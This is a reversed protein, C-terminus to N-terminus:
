SPTKSSLPAASGVFKKRIVRDLLLGAIAVGFGVLSTIHEPFLM